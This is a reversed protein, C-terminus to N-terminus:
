SAGRYLEEIRVYSGERAINTVQLCILRALPGRLTFSFDIDLNPGREPYYLCKQINKAQHSKVNFQGWGGGGVM